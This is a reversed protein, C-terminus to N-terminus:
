LDVQVARRQLDHHRDEAARRGHLELEQLHLLKLVFKSIRATPSPHPSRFPHCLLDSSVDLQLNRRSLGSRRRRDAQARGAPTFMMSKQLFKLAFVADWFPRIM